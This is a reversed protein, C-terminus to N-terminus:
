GATYPIESLVTALWRHPHAALGNIDRRVPIYRPGLPGSYGRTVRRAAELRVVVARVRGQVRVTAVGEIVGLVPQSTRVTLMTAGTYRSDTHQRSLTAAIPPSVWGLIHKAPRTGRRIELYTQVLHAVWQHPPTLGPESTTRSKRESVQAVREDFTPTTM